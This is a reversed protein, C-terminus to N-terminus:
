QAEEEGGRPVAADAEATKCPGDEDANRGPGSSAGSEAQAMMFSSTKRLALTTSGLATACVPLCPAFFAFVLTVCDHLVAYICRGPMHNVVVHLVRDHNCCTNKWMGDSCTHGPWAPQSGVRRAIEIQAAQSPRPLSPPATPEKYSLDPESAQPDAHRCPSWEMLTSPSCEKLLWRELAVDKRLKQQLGSLKLQKQRILAKLKVHQLQLNM